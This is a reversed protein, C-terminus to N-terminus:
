RKRGFRRGPNPDGGEFFATLAEDTEEDAAPETNVAADLKSLYRDQQATSLVETHAQTAEDGPRDFDSPADDSGSTASPDLESWSGPGWQDATGLQADPDVDVPDAVDVLPVAGTPHFPSTVPRASAEFALPEHVLLATPDDLVRRMQDAAAEIGSRYEGIRAELAMVHASLGSRESELTRVEGSFRSRQAVFENEADERARRLMEDRQGQAERVLRDAEAASERTTAEAQAQAQALLKSAEDRAEGVAADATRKALVLTRTAQEIEEEDSMSQGAMSSAQAVPHSGASERLMAAEDEAREARSSLAAVEATLEALSAGVRELFDDVQDPDYGRFKESFEIQEILQPTVDM